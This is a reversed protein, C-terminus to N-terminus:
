GTPAVTEDVAAEPAPEPEATVVPEPAVAAPEPAAEQATEPSEEAAMLAALDDDVSYTIGADFNRGGATINKSPTVTAM